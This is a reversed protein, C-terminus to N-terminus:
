YPSVVSWAWCYIVCEMTQRNIHFFFISVKHPSQSFLQIIHRHNQPLIELTQSFLGKKIFLRPRNSATLITAYAHQM